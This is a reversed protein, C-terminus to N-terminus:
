ITPVDSLTSDLSKNLSVTESNISELKAFLMKYRAIDAQIEQRLASLQDSRRILSQRAAQFEAQTTFGDSQTARTNFNNVAENLSTVQQNYSVSKNDIQDSLAELQRTLSDSEAKLAEFTADVKQHLAVLAQRDKFYKSYYRELEPSLTAFETGVISHLENVSEGPETKEYYRMREALEADGGSKYASELLPKLRRKEAEPLRDYEAHLLEHAATVAKIGSLREDTINFIYIRNSAYCGLIPSDAEKRECNANFQEGSEVSPHTAYFTFLADDTLGAKTSVDRVAVSPTYSQYQLADVIYQREVWLWVSGSILLASIIWGM